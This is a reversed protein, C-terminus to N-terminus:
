LQHGLYRALLIAWWRPDIPEGASAAFLLLMCNLVRRHEPNYPDIGEADLGDRLHAAAQDIAADIHPDM